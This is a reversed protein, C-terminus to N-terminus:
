RPPTFSIWGKALAFGLAALGVWTLVKTIVSKGVQKYFENAIEEVALKAAARAVAMERDTLEIETTKGTAM